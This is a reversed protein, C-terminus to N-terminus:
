IEITGHIVAEHIAGALAFEFYGEVYRRAQRDAETTQSRPKYDVTYDPVGQDDVAIIGNAFADALVTVCVSELLAIGNNDYSIKPRDNLTRQTRWEIERILYDKSDVIDLYEGDAVKGETTVTDGAKSVICYAGLTAAQSIDADTFASPTLGAVIINKYTFGGVPLGATAGVVAAEPCDVEDPYYLCFTRDFGTIANATGTIDALDTVSAFYIKTLSSDAASASEVYAAIDHVSDDDVTDNQAVILQRWDNGWIDPLAETAKGTAGCVTIKAPPLAQAFLLSAANYVKTGSPFLLAVEGINACETYPVETTEFTGLILPVGFGSGTLVKAKDIIVKVDLSM